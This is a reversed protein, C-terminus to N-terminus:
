HKGLHVIALAALFILGVIITWATFQEGDNDFKIQM